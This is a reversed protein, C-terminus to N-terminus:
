IAHGVFVTRGGGPSGSHETVPTAAFSNGRLLDTWTGIPFLGFVHSETVVDITGDADRTVLTYETHASTDTPDPDWTWELYRIGSGDAADTGGHHTGPEFSERVHDPMFVAVGGPALHARATAFVANLDDESLMYDIADHVLMADFVRGLRVTRMDGLIHEAHPNLRRSVELMPKALDVLTLDFDRALYFANHGGGSGLECLTPKAAPSPPSEASLEVDALREDDVLGARLLGAIMAADAIYDEPPSLLPWWRALDTYM